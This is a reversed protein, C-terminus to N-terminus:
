RPGPPHRRLAPRFRSQRIRSGPATGSTERTTARVRSLQSLDRPGPIDTSGNKDMLRAQPAQTAMVLMNSGWSRRRYLNIAVHAGWGHDRAGGARLNLGRREAEVVVALFVQRENVGAVLFRRDGPAGGVFQDVHTRRRRRQADEVGAHAVAGYQPTQHARRMPQVAVYRQEDDGLLDAELVHAEAQLLHRVPEDLMRGGHHDDGVEVVGLRGPEHRAVHVIRRREVPLFNRQGPRGGVLVRTLDLFECGREGVAPLRLRARLGAIGDVHPGRDQDEISLIVPKQEVVHDRPRATTEAAVVEHDGRLWPPRPHRRGELRLPHQRRQRAVERGATAQEGDLGIATVGAELDHLAQPGVLVRELDITVVQKCRQPRLEPAVRAVVREGRSGVVLGDEAVVHM